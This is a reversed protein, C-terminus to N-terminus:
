TRKFSQIIVIEEGDEQHELNKAARHCLTAYDARSRSSSVEQARIGAAAAAAARQEDRLIRSCFIRVLQSLDIGCEMVGPDFFRTTGAEAPPNRRSREETPHCTFSHSGMHCVLELLSSTIAM